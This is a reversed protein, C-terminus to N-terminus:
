RSRAPPPANNVALNGNQSKQQLKCVKAADNYSITRSANMQKTMCSALQRRNLSAQSPSDAALLQGTLGLMVLVVISIKKHRM